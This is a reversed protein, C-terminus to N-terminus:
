GGGEMLWRAIIGHSLIGTVVVAAATLALPLTMSWGPESREDDDAPPQLFVLELIRLVYFVACLSGLLIAAVLVPRGAAVAAELLYWKSFFGGMPPIGVLSLGAISLCVATIPMRRGLGRLDQMRWVEAAGAVQFLAGKLLAHNLVHLLAAALALDSGIGIGIAIYGVQGISSWALLRRFDSQTIALVAGIVVAVAGMVAVIHGVAIPGLAAEGDFVQHLYRIMALAMVKTTIPAVFAATASPARSYADPMWAHLPFLGMKIGLGAVIFALAAPALDGAEAVRQGLDALNLTGTAVYLYGVGLLYLSAGTAGLILYRFAAVRSPGNGAGVLAYGALSAVELFVFMNFADGTVCMGLLGCLALVATAYFTPARDGMERGAPHRSWALAVTAMSAVVAAVFCGLRDARLEIGWPPRWGAVHYSVAGHATVHELLAWAVAAATGAAVTALLHALWSRRLAGVSILIAASLPILILLVPGHAAIM